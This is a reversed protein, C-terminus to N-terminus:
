NKKKPRRLSQQKKLLEILAENNKRQMELQQLALNADRHFNENDRKIVEVCDLLTVNTVNVKISSISTSFTAISITSYKDILLLGAKDSIDEPSTFCFQDVQYVVGKQRGLPSLDSSSVSGRSFESINGSAIITQDTLKQHGGFTEFGEAKAGVGTACLVVFLLLRTNSLSQIFDVKLANRHVINPM